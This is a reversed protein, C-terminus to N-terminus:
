LKIWETPIIDNINYEPGKEGFWKKNAIVIKDEYQNLYAGWWGFTSNCIINNDAQTMLTLDMIEDDFPSYFINNGKFNEKCWNMDDSIFIFFNDHGIRNMAEKYYAVSITPHIDPFKLYDGRRVHVTTVPIEESGTIFDIHSNVKDIDKEDFYFLDIIEKKYDKFYKESQLYSDHILLDKQYPIPSYSHKPEKYLAKWPYNNVDIEKLNKYLSKKYKNSAFGQLPTFCGNFDFACEDNNRKALAYTSAIVMLQNGLGGLLKASIM